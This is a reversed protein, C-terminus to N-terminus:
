AGTGNMAIDPVAAINDDSALAEPGAPTGDANYLRAYCGFGSGDQGQSEWATVWGGNALATIVPNWQATDAFTNVQTEGGIKDGNADFVQQCISFWGNQWTIVWGGTDLATIQQTNQNEATTTHVQVEGGLRTGDVNFAQAYVGDSNAADQGVSRWAIVWGGGEIGTIVPQDQNHATYTNVRPPVGFVVAGDASYAQTYLGSRDGDEGPSNWVVVWGGGDLPALKQQFQDGATTTNVPTEPGFRAGSDLFAQAYVGDTFDVDDQHQSTWTVVWGGGDRAVLQADKQYGTSFTNVSAEVTRVTGDANYTKSRVEQDSPTLETQTEWIISWGGDSLGVVQPKILSWADDTNVQFQGGVAAGFGDFRQAYIHQSTGEDSRWTAIWGGDALRAMEAPTQYGYTTTNVLQEAGAVVKM